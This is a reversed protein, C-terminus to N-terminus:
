KRYYCRGFAYIYFRLINLRMCFILYSMSATPPFFLFPQFFINIFTRIKSLCLCQMRILSFVSMTKLCLYRCRQLHEKYSYINSSFIFYIILNISYRTLMLWHIICYELFCFYQQKNPTWARLASVKNYNNLKGPILM